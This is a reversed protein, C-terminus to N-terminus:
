LLAFLDGTVPRGTTRSVAGMLVAIGNDYQPKRELQAFAVAMTEFGFDACGSGNTVSSSWWWPVDQGDVISSFRSCYLKPRIM